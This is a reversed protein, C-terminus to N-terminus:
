RISESGGVQSAGFAAGCEFELNGVVGQPRVNNQYSPRVMRVVTEVFPCTTTGLLIRRLSPNCGPSASSALISPCCITSIGRLARRRFARIMRSRTVPSGTSVAPGFAGLSVLACTRSARASKGHSVQQVHISQEREGYQFMLEMRPNRVPHVAKGRSTNRFQCRTGDCFQAKHTNKSLNWLVARRYCLRALKQEFQFVAVFHTASENSIVV